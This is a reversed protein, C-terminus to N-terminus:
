IVDTNDKPDNEKNIQVMITLNDIYGDNNKDVDSANVNNEFEKIKSLCDNLM